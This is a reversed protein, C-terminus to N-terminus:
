RKPSWVQKSHIELNFHREGCSLCELLRNTTKANLEVEINLSLIRSGQSRKAWGGCCVVSAPRDGNQLLTIKVQRIESIRIEKMHM